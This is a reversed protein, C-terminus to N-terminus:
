YRPLTTPFLVKTSLLGGFFGGGPWVWFARRSGCFFGAMNIGHKKGPLPLGAAFTTNRFSRGDNEFIVMPDLRDLKPSGNGLALDLYGDNNFDGCNGSM